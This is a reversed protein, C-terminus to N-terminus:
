RYNNRFIFDARNKPEFCIKQCMGGRKGYEFPIDPLFMVDDDFLFTPLVIYSHEYKM